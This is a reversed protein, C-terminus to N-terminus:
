KSKKQRLAFLAAYKKDEKLIHELLWNKLTKIITTNLILEGSRIDRSLSYVYSDFDKHLRRHQILGPYDLKALYQEEFKFHYETYDQMEQVTRTTISDLNQGDGALLAENMNNLIEIWKKHQQDIEADNVSYSDDWIILAM